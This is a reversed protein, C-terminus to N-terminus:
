QIKENKFTNKNTYGEFKFDKDLFLLNLKNTYLGRLKDELQKKKHSKLM